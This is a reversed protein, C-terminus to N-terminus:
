ALPRIGTKGLRRIEPGIVALFYQLIKTGLGTKQFNPNLIRSVEGVGPTNELTDLFCFGVTM